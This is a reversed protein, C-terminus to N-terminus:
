DEKLYDEQTLLYQKMALLIEEQSQYQYKSAINKYFFYQFTAISSLSLFLLIGIEIGYQKLSDKASIGTGVTAIGLLSIILMANRFYTKNRKNKRDIERVKMKEYNSAIQNLYQKQEPSLTLNTNIYRSAMRINYNLGNLADKTSINFFFYTEFICLFTAILLSKFLTISTPELSSITTSNPSNEM